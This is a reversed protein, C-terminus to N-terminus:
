NKSKNYIFNFVIKRYWFSKLKQLLTAYTSIAYSYAKDPYCNSKRELSYLRYDTILRNIRYRIETKDDYTNLHSLRLLEVTYETLSNKFKGYIALGINLNQSETSDNEQM